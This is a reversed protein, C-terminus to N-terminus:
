AGNNDCREDKGREVSEAKARAEEKREKDGEKDGEERDREKRSNSESICSISIIAM